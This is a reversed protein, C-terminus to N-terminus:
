GHGSFEFETKVPSSNPSALSSFATTGAHCNCGPVITNHAGILLAWATIRSITTCAFHMRGTGCERRQFRVITIAQNDTSPLLLKELVADPLLSEIIWSVVITELFRPDNRQNRLASILDNLAPFPSLPSARNDRKSFRPRSPNWVIRKLQM